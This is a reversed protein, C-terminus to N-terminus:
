MVCKAHWAVATSTRRLRVSGITVRFMSVEARRSEGAGGRMRDRRGPWRSSVKEIGTVAPRSAVTTVRSAKQPPMPSARASATEMAPVRYRAPQSSGALREAVSACTSFHSSVQSASYRGVTPMYKEPPVVEAYWALMHSEVSGCSSPLGTMTSRSRKMTCFISAVSTGIRQMGFTACRICRSCEVSLIISCGALEPLVECTRRMGEILCANM